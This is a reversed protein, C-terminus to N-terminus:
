PCHHEEHLMERWNEIDAGCTPCVPRQALGVARRSKEGMTQLLALRFEIGAKELQIISDARSRITEIPLSGSNPIMAVQEGHRWLYVYKETETLTFGLEKQEKTSISDLINM